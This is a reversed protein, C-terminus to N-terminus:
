SAPQRANSGWDDSDDDASRHGGPLARAGPFARAGPAGVTSPWRVFSSLWRSCEAAPLPRALYYGQAAHCGFSALRHLTAKDEVGEATVTRGLNRALDITSRVIAEDGQDRIMEKVFSRDIKLEKFPLDKLRSLSSFGTGYDDISLKIGLEKLDYMAQHSVTPDAMVSSETLELTLSHGDLGATDLARIVRDSVRRSTLSRASLNVSVNMGPVLDHWEKVQALARDLVWWTLPDILGANEAVPIFEVPSIPGFQDHNWRLLAECSLVEGTGLHVVPQYYVDLDQRELARRLETALTLRRLTSRDEAPDYFRIGGGAAKASYMAIDAHRVLNVADRGRGTSPAVAAGLSARIDLLLNEFALPRTIVSMVQNAATEVALDDRAAGLLVAYEDGGLRAVLSKDGAFPTLRRAIERLIADGTHHGLTDNVDRFGDLDVLLVAVKEGSRSGDVLATELRKEFLTRNPLGTLSDHHAQHQRVAVERRLKELLESSRLAVGANVALTEFFLLDSKSFGEHRYPRDAVLLYGANRDERQLPAVLAERLGHGEMARRLVADESARALFVAGRESVLHSLEPLPAGDEFAAPEEDVLTCRLVVNELPSELPIVLEARSASLLTRTEELVTVMVDRAETLTSLRRTFDYLKELNAYRQGAVVTARYAWNTAVVVGAFLVVGWTNAWILSIAVLGGATCVVICTAVQLAMPKVPPRRWRTDTLRMLVLVVALDIVLMVAVAGFGALWGGATVPSRGGVWWRYCLLSATMGLLFAGLGTLIKSASRGRTLAGGLYGAGAAALAVGPALYVVAVLVPIESLTMSVSMRRSRVKVSHVESLWVGIGVFPVLVLKQPRSASAGALTSDFLLCALALPAILV